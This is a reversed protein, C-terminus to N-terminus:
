ETFGVSPSCPLDITVEFGGPVNYANVRGGMREVIAIRILFLGLGARKSPDKTTFYPEFLHELVEKSVQPGNNYIALRAYGEVQDIRIIIQGIWSSEETQSARYEEIAEVANTMVGLVAQRVEDARGWAQCVPRESGEVSVVIHAREFDHTMLALVSRVVEDLDIATMAPTPAFFNAFNSITTSLAIVEDMAREIVKAVAERTPTEFDYLDLISQIELGILNLPQRWHHAIANFMREMAAQKAEQIMFAEQRRRQEIEDAVLMELQLREREMVTIETFSVVNVEEGERPARGYRLAFIHDGDPRKILVKFQQSPHNKLWEVWTKGDRVDWLYNQDEVHEFFECICRHEKRFAALDPYEPFFEFFARNTDILKQGDNVVIINTITDFLTKITQEREALKRQATACATIDVGTLLYYFPNTGISDIRWSILRRHGKGDILPLEVSASSSRAQVFSNRAVGREDERVSVDFWDLGILPKSDSAGLLQAIGKNLWTLAFSEDLIVILAHKTTELAQLSLLQSLRHEM